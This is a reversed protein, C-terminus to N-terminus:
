NSSTTPLKLCKSRITTFEIENLSSSARWAGASASLHWKYKYSAHAVRMKIFSFQRGIFKSWPISKAFAGIGIAGAATGLAGFQNILTDLLGILQTAADIAGKFLDSDLTDSALVELSAKMKAIRADISKEWTEQERMASGESGEAIGYAEEILQYNSLAAAFANGQAKGALKQLLASRDVDSINEWEKGIGVVIDYISKFQNESDMIDFGTIGKVLDRLDSTSKAMGDTEEGAAELEATAGRLRM